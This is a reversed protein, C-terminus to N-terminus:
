ARWDLHVMSPLERFPPTPQHALNLASYHFSSMSTAVLFERGSLRVIVTIAARSDENETKRFPRGAEPAAIAASRGCTRDPRALRPPNKAVGRGATRRGTRVQLLISWSYKGAQRIIRRRGFSVKGTGRTAGGSKSDLRRRRSYEQWKAKGTKLKAGAGDKPLRRARGCDVIRRGAGRDNRQVTGAPKKGRPTLM